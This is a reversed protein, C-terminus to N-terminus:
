MYDNFNSNFIQKTMGPKSEIISKYYNEDEKIEETGTPLNESSAKIEEKIIKKEEEPEILNSNGDLESEILLKMAVNLDNDINILYISSSVIAAEIIKEEATPFMGKLNSLADEM